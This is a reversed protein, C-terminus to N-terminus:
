VKFDTGKIVMGCIKESMPVTKLWPLVLTFRLFSDSGLNEGTLVLVANIEPLITSLCEEGLIMYNLSTYILLCM